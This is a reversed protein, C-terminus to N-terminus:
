AALPVPSGPTVGPNAQTVRNLQEQMYLTNLGFVLVLWCSTAPSCTVPLGAARQANAIAKGTNLYSVLPAVVTWGLFILVLVSGGPSLSLRRDYEQLERHIKYYWVLHYIGFTIIPLGLWVAVPGRRKMALGGTPPTAYPVPNTM